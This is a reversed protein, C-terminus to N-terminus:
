RHLTLDYKALEEEIRKCRTRRYKELVKKRSLTTFDGYVPVERSRLQGRARKICAVEEDTLIEEFVMISAPIKHPDPYIEKLFEERPELVHRLAIGATLISPVVENWLENESLGWISKLDNISLAPLMEFTIYRRMLLHRIRPSLGELTILHSM